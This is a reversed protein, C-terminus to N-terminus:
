DITLFTHGVTGSGGVDITTGIPAVDYNSSPDFLGVAGDTANSVQVGDGVVTTTADNLVACVGHTQLWAYVNATIAWPACGVCPQTGPSPTIIVDRYPSKIMGVTDGTALDTKLGDTSALTLSTDTTGNLTNKAILYTHGNTEDLLYGDRLIDASGVSTAVDITIGTYVGAAFAATPNENVWGATPAESQYLRAAVGVTAGMEVWRWLRGDPFVMVRGMRGKQTTVTDFQQGPGGLLVAPFGM